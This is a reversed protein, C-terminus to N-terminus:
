RQKRSPTTYLLPCNMGVHLWEHFTMVSFVGASWQCALCMTRFTDTGQLTSTLLYGTRLPMYDTFMHPCSLDAVTCGASHACRELVHTRALAHTRALSLPCAEGDHVKSAYVMCTSFIYLIVFMGVMWRRSSADPASYVAHCIAPLMKEIGWNMFGGVATVATAALPVALAPLGRKWHHQDGEYRAQDRENRLNACEQRGRDLELRLENGEEVAVRTQQLIISMDAANVM